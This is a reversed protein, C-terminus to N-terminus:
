NNITAIYQNFENIFRDYDVELTLTFDALFHDGLFEQHDKYFRNFSDDIIQAVIKSAASNVDTVLYKYAICLTYIEQSTDKNKATISQTILYEIDNLINQGFTQQLSHHAFTNPVKKRSKIESEITQSQEYKFKM